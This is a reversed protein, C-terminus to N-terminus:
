WQAANGSLNTALIPVVFSNILYFVSLKVVHWKERESQTHWREDFSLARVALTICYNMFVVFVGSFLSIIRLRLATLYTDAFSVGADGYRVQADGLMTHICGLM